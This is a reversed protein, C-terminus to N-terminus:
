IDNLYFIVINIMDFKLCSTTLLKEILESHFHQPIFSKIIVNFIILMGSLQM